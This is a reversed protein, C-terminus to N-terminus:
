PNAVGATARLVLTQLLFPLLASSVAPHQPPGILPALRSAHESELYRTCSPILRWHPALVITAAQPRSILSVSMRKGTQLEGTMKWRETETENWDVTAQLHSDDPNYHRRHDGAVGRFRGYVEVLSCPAIVWFVVMKMSVATIVNFGVQYVEISLSHGTQVQLSIPTHLEYLKILNLQLKVTYAYTNINACHSFRNRMEQQM